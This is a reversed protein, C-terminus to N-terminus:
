QGDYTFINMKLHRMQMHVKHLQRCDGRKVHLNLMCVDVAKSFNLERHPTCFNQEEKLVYDQVLLNWVKIWHKVVWDESCLTSKICCPLTPFM